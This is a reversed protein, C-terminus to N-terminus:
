GTIDEVVDYAVVILLISSKKPDFSLILKVQLGILVRTLKLNDLKVMVSYQGIAFFLIPNRDQNDIKKRDRDQLNFNDDIGIM